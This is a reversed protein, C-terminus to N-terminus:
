EGIKTMGAFVIGMLVVPILAYLGANWGAREVVAGFFVPRIVLSAYIGFTAIAIGMGTMQPSGMIGPVATMMVTPLFGSGLAGMAVMWIPIAIGAIHFAILLLLCYIVISVSFAAKLHHGFRGILIGALPGGFLLGVSSLSSVLGARQLTYGRMQHLYTVYFNILVLPFFVCFSAAAWLWINRNAFAELLSPIKAGRAARNERSMWPPMRVFAIVSLLSILSLAATLWWVSVWGYRHAIWPIGALAVFGSVGRSTNALGMALGVKHPPFWIGAVTYTVLATLVFGIGEFGCSVLFVAYHTSLAGLASGIVSCVMALIGLTRIGYKHVFVGSPLGLILSVFAVVAMMLGASRLGIKFYAMLDPMIPPIKYFNLGGVFTAAYAVCFVVWANGTVPMKEENESPSTRM